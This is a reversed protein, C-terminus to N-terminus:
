LNPTGNSPLAQLSPIFPPHDAPPNLPATLPPNEKSNRGGGLGTGGSTCLTRSSLASSTTSAATRHRRATCGASPPGRLGWRGGPMEARKRSAESRAAAHWTGLGGMVVGGEGGDKRLKGGRGGLSGEGGRLVGGKM